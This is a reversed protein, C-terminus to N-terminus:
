SGREVVGGEEVLWMVAEAMGYEGQDQLSDHLQMLGVVDYVYPPGVEQEQVELLVRAQEPTLRERRGRAVAVALAYSSGGVLWRPRSPNKDWDLPAVHSCCHLWNVLVRWRSMYERVAPTADVVVDCAHMYKVLRCVKRGDWVEVLVQMAFELALEERGSPHPRCTLVCGEYDVSAVLSGSYTIIPM